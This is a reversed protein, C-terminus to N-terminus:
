DGAPYVLAHKKEYYQDVIKWETLDKELGFLAQYSQQLDKGESLQEKLLLLCLKYQIAFTKSDWDREIEFGYKREGLKLLDEDLNLIGSGPKRLFDTRAKALSLLFLEPKPIRKGIRIGDPIELRESVRVVTKALEFKERHSLPSDKEEKLLLFIMQEKTKLKERPFYSSSDRIPIEDYEQLILLALIM